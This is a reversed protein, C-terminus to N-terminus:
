LQQKLISGTGAVTSIFGTAKTVKRIVCNYADAIYMDGADNIWQSALATVAKSSITAKSVLVAGKDAKVPTGMTVIVTENPENLHDDVLTITIDASTEGAKIKLPSKTVTYDAPDKATGTVTFPVSVDEGSTGSLQATITITGASEAKTQGAKTFSVTLSDSSCASLGAILMLSFLVKISKM